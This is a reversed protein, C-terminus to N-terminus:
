VSVACFSSGFETPSDVTKFYGAAEAFSDAIAMGDDATDQKSLKALAKSERALLANHQELIATQKKLSEPEVTNESKGVKELAAQTGISRRANKKLKRWCVFSIRECRSCWSWCWFVFRDRTVCSKWHM